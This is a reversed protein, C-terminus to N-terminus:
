PAGADLLPAIIDVHKESVALMLVARGYEDHLNPDARHDLLLKVLNFDGRNAAVM